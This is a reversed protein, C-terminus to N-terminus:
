KEADHRVIYGRRMAVNESLWFAGPRRSLAIFRRSVRKGNCRYMCERGKVDRKM